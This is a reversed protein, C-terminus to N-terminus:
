NVVKCNKRIEGQSGTLVDIKGMHVMAKAFKAAWESPHDVNKQVLKRTVHTDWLVQDSALLGKHKELNKYYTNDLKDPTVPDFAVVPDSASGTKSPVPCKTKLYAAYAPDLSPDVSYTSNYSYLRYSFSSCHSDGISHAGSLTVMEELSLGKKAFNQQLQKVDFKESPLQSVVESALSVRGDKRGAPVNYYIKGTRYVGDRAAFAVIDACSVTNPCVAEIKAKAEDIIDLGAVGKNGSSEIEAPHGPTSNLLISADCGRVFCDHFHLRILAAPAGPDLATAKDVTSRILSEASPCCSKYYGVKLKQSSAPSVLSITIALTVCILLKPVEM